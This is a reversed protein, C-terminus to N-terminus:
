HTKDSPVLPHREIDVYGTLIQLGKIELTEKDLLQTPVAAAVLNIDCYVAEKKIECGNCFLM